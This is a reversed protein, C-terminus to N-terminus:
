RDTVVAFWVRKALRRAQSILMRPGTRAIKGPLMATRRLLFRSLSRLTPTLPVSHSLVYVNKTMRFAAFGAVAGAAAFDDFDFSWRPNTDHPTWGLGM